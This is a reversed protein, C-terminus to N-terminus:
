AGDGCWTDPDFGLLKCGTTSKGSGTVGMAVFVLADATTLPPLAKWPRRELDVREAEAAAEREVRAAEEAAERAMRAAEAAAEREV